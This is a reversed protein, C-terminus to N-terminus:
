SEFGSQGSSARGRELRLRRADVRKWLSADHSVVVVIAGRAREETLVVELRSTGDADLGTFPEDLLLLKPGHVLARALAIRQKQGRSLTGVRREKLGRAGVRDLAELASATTTGNLRAMLMVNELATLERYCASEHGVWGVQERWDGVSAGEPEWTVSGATPEMLGGLISLLTSKGAGNAGEVVTITGFSFQTSVGRLVWAPGFRRTVGRVVLEGADSM